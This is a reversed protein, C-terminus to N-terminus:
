LLSSMSKVSTTRLNASESACATTSNVRKRFLRRRAPKRLGTNETETMLASPSTASRPLLSARPIPMACTTGEGVFGFTAIAQLDRAEGIKSTAHRQLALLADDRDMGCGDDAGRILDAGGGALELDIRSAGADLANELLEKVVSSPREVVEGAAIQNAVNEELIRIVGM